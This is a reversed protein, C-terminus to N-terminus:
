QLRQERRRQMETISVRYLGYLMLVIGFIVRLMEGGEANSGRFEFFGVLVLLGVVFMVVGLVYGIMRM